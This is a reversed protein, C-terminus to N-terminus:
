FVTNGTYGAYKHEIDTIKVADWLGFYLGDKIIEKRRIMSKKQHQFLYGSRLTRM